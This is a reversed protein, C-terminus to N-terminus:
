TVAYSLNKTALVTWTGDYWDTKKYMGIGYTGFNIEKDYIYGVTVSYTTNRALKLTSSVSNGWFRCGTIRYYEIKGTCHNLVKLSLIPAKAGSGQFSATGTSSFVMCPSGTNSTTVTFTKSQFAGYNKSKGTAASAAAFASLLSLLVAAAITVSFIRKVTKM